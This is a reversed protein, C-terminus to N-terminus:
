VGMPKPETGRVNVLGRSSDHLDAISRPVSALADQHFVLEVGHMDARVRDLDRQDGEIVQVRAKLDALSSQRVTVLNDYVCLKEESLSRRLLTHAIFEAGGTVLNTATM